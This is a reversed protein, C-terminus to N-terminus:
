LSPRLVRDIIHLIGNSTYINLVKANATPQLNVAINDDIKVTGRLVKFTQFATTSGTQNAKTTCTADTTASAPTFSTTSSAGNNINGNSTGTFATQTFTGGSVVHYNLVVPVQAPTLGAIYTTASGFADNNPAFVQTNAAPANINANTAVLNAFATISPNVKITSALTPLKLVSSIEHIIGNSGNIDAKVVTAGGDTSEGNIKVGNSTSVFASLTLSTSTGFPSLTRFYNNNPLDKSSTAVNIVHYMLLRKLENEQNATLTGNIVAETIGMSFNTSNYVSFSTNSPAFITYSGINQCIGYLGFKKLGSILTSYKTPEKELIEAMTPYKEITNQTADNDSCSALFAITIISFAKIINNVLRM